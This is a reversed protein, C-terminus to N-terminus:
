PQQNGKSKLAILRKEVHHRRGKVEVEDPRTRGEGPVATVRIRRECSLNELIKSM